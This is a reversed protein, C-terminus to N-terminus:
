LHTEDTEWGEPEIQVTVHGIKFRERVCVHVQQLVEDYTADARRVVHASLANVGSTLTWVHLDHVGSVM